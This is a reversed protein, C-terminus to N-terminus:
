RLSFKACLGDIPIQDKDYGTAIHHIYTFNDYWITYIHSYKYIVCTQHILYDTRFVMMFADRSNYILVYRYCLHM